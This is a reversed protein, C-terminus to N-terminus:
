NLHLYMGKLLRLLAEEARELNHRCTDHPLAKSEAPFGYYHQVGLLRCVEPLDRRCEFQSAAWPSKGDKSGLLIDTVRVSPYAQLVDQVKIAFGDNEYLFAGSSQRSVIVNYLVLYVSQHQFVEDPIHM